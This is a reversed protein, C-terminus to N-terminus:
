PEDGGRDVRPTDPGPASPETANPVNAGEVPRREGLIREVLIPPTEFLMADDGRGPTGRRTTVLTTLGRAVRAGDSVRTVEYGVGVRSEHETFWASVRFREGYRLPRVHRARTEVVYFGLQLPLMDIADVRHARFLATRAIEFYKYYWGHWAVFLPDLDHFPVELEVSVADEPARERLARGGRGARSSTTM